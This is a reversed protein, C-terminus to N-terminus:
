VKALKDRVSPSAVPKPHLANKSPHVPAKLPIFQGQFLAALDRRSAAWQGWYFRLPALGRPPLARRIVL